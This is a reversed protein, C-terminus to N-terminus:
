GSGATNSLFLGHPSVTCSNIEGGGCAISDIQNDEDDDYESGISGM